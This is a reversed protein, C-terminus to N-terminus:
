SLIRHGCTAPYRQGSIFLFIGLCVASGNIVLMKLDESLFSLWGMRPFKVSLILISFIEILVLSVFLSVVAAFGLSKFM